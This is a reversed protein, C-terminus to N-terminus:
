EKVPPDKKPIIKKRPEEKKKPEEKKPEPAKMEGPQFDSVTHVPFLKWGAPVDGVFGLLLAPKDDITVNCLLTTSLTMGDKGDKLTVEADASKESVNYEGLHLKEITAIDVKLTKKFQVWPLLKVSGDAMHYLGKVNSATMVTGTKGKGEPVVMFSFLKGEAPKDPAKAGAFKIEKFGGKLVGGRFKVDVIGKGRDVEGEVTITNINVFKTTGQLPKDLGAIAFTATAKEYDYAIGQLQELPVYTTVGDKFTTSGFERIVFTEVPKEAWNVTYLGSVIKWKKPAALRGNADIITVAKEDKTDKPPDAATAVVSAVFLVAICFRPVCM